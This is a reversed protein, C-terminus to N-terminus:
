APRSSPAPRVPSAPWATSSSRRPSTGPRWRRGFAEPCPSASGVRRAALLRAIKKDVRHPTSEMREVLPQIEQTAFDDTAEM